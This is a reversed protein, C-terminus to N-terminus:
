NLMKRFRDMIRGTAEEVIEGEIVEEKDPFDVDCFDDLLLHLDITKKPLQILQNTSKPGLAATVANFYRWVTKGGHDASPQSWEKHVQGIRKLNIINRRFSEMILHDATYDDVPALKYEAFRVDQRKRQVRIQKIATNFREPLENWVNPTHKHGVVIDGSFSLNDCVFVKGGIALSAIFTKDHANRLACMTSYNPDEEEDKHLLRMLAFYQAGERNIFHQDESIQYGQADLQEQAFSFFKDHAIPLHTDTPEPTKLLPLHEFPIAEAGCHMMAGRM